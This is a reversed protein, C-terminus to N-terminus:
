ISGPPNSEEVQLQQLISDAQAAAARAPEYHNGTYQLYIHPLTRDGFIMWKRDPGQVCVCVSYVFSAYALEIGGGWASPLKMREIYQEFKEGNVESAFEVWQRVKM